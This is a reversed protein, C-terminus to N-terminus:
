SWLDCYKVHLTYTKTFFYFNYILIEFLTDLIEQFVSILKKKFASRM